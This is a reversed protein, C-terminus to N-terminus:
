FSWKRQFFVGADALFVERPLIWMLRSIFDIYLKRTGYGLAIQFKTSADSKTGWKLFPHTKGEVLDVMYPLCGPPNSGGRSSSRQGEPYGGGTSINSTSSSTPPVGGWDRRPSAAAAHCLSGCFRSPIQQNEVTKGIDVLKPISMDCFM